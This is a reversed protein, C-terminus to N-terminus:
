KLSSDIDYTKDKVQVLHQGHQAFYDFKIIIRGYPEKQDEICSGLSKICKEHVNIKCLSCQYGQRAVGVLLAGCHDSNFPIPKTKLNQNLFPRIGLVFHRFTIPKRNLSIIANKVCIVFQVMQDSWVSGISQISAANICPYRM